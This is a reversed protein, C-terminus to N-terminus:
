PAADPRLVAITSADLDLRLLLADELRLELLRGERASRLAVHEAAARTWAANRNPYFVFVGGGLDAFASAPLVNLHLRQELRGAASTPAPEYVAPGASAARVIGLRDDLNLWRSDFRRPAATRAEAAAFSESGGEHALARVGRHFPWAVDNLVGLTGLSLARLRVAVGTSRLHDAYVVRGDPLAVFAFRQEVAGRGRGLVGAVGFGGDLRAVTAGRVEPVETPGSDPVVHGILGRAEPSLLLDNGMPVVCGMIQAGWSFSAISTPTRAIGFRGAEFLHVGSLGTWLESAFEPEPGEGREALLAYVHAPYELMMHQDSPLKTESPLYIAGRSTRAAMRQLTALSLRMAAACRRDEHLVALTAFFEFWDVTRRLGWDQGNPYLVSGDPLALSLLAEGIARLNLQLVEPAPLGAWAYLPLQSTLLYTCAMYDPHVRGHNELTYDDLLNAGSIWDRLPKGDMRDTRALDAQTSFSSAIWRLATDRWVARRPHEPFLCVALSVVASNWANEEARSNHRLQAPPAVGVFREAERCVMEVALRRDQEDLEDWLLWCAEGALAAWYASQWQGGWPKGDACVGGDAGHSRLLGRLLALAAYRARARSFDVPFVEDPLLRVLLALGKATHAAPRVGHEGSRAGRLLPPLLAGPHVGPHVGSPQLESVLHRAQQMMLPELARM